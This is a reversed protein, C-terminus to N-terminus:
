MLVIVALLGGAAGVVAYVRGLRDRAECAAALCTELRAATHRIAKQQGQADYRGLMTGLASLAEREAEALMPLRAEMARQWSERLGAEPAKQFSALCESFFHGVPGETGQGLRQLLATLPTLQFALEEELYALAELLRRLVRVREKLRFVGHLGLAASGLVVCLGGALRLM